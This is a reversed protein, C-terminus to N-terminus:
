RFIRQPFAVQESEPRDTTTLMMIYHTATFLHKVRSAGAYGLRWPASLRSKRDGSFSLSIYVVNDLAANIKGTM